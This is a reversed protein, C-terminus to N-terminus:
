VRRSITQAELVDIQDLEFNSGDVNSYGVAFYNERFGRGPKARSEGSERVVLDYTYEETEGYMTVAATGSGKLSFYVMDVFKKKSSGWLPKGTVINAVIPETLDKDGGLLFLGTVSGAHTPTIAHFDFNTYESVAGTQTNMVITNM